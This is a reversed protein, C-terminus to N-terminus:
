AEGKTMSSLISSLAEEQSAMMERAIAQREVVEGMKVGIFFLENATPNLRDIIRKALDTMRIPEDAQSSEFATDFEKEFVSYIEETRDATISLSKSLDSSDNTTITLNEM